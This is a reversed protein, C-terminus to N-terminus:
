LGSFNPPWYIQSLSLSLSLALSLSLSLWRALLLDVSDTIHSKECQYSNVFDIQDNKDVISCCCISFLDRDMTIM